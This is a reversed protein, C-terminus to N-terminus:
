ESETLLYLLHQTYCSLIEARLPRFISIIFTLQAQWEPAGRLFLTLPRIQTVACTCTHPEKYTLTHTFTNHSHTDVHTHSCTMLLWIPHAGPRHHVHFLWQQAFYQPFFTNRESQVRFLQWVTFKLWLPCFRGEKPWGERDLNREQACFCVVWRDTAM